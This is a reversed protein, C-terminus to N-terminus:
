RCDGESLRSGKTTLRATPAAHFRDRVNLIQKAPATNPAIKPGAQPQSWSEAEAGDGDTVAVGVETGEGYKSGEGRFSTDPYAGPM